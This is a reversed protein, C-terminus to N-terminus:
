QPPTLAAPANASAAGGPAAAHRRAEPLHEQRSEQRHEDVRLARERDGRDVVDDRPLEARAARSRQPHELLAAPRASTADRDLEVSLTEVLGRHSTGRRIQRVLLDRLPPGAQLFVWVFQDRDGLALASEIADGAIDRDLQARCAVAYLVLAEIRSATDAPEDRLDLAPSLLIRLAGDTDGAALAQRAALVTTAVCPPAATIAAAAEDDERAAILLRIERRGCWGIWRGRSRRGTARRTSRLASSSSGEALAAGACGDPRTGAGGRRALALPADGLRPLPKRAHSPRRRRRTAATCRRGDSHSGLGAREAGGRGLRSDTALQLAEDALEM